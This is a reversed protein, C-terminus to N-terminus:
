LGARAAEYEATWRAILEGVPLVQDLAGVGQGCGWIDRWAKAASAGGSGFDMRSPDSQPLADPDLGAAVISARLYNGHVGTFLNTYVIDQARAETVARKYADSANAERTAIFASGVYALDAGM